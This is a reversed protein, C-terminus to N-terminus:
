ITMCLGLVCIHPVASSRLFAASVKSIIFPVMMSTYLWFAASLKSVDSRSLISLSSVYSVAFSTHAINLFATRSLELAYIESLMSLLISFYKLLIGPSIMSAASSFSVSFIRKCISHSLSLFSSLILFM